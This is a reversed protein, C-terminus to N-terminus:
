RTVEILIGDEVSKKLLKTDAQIWSAAIDQLTALEKATINERENKGFGYLFVARENRRFAVLGRFAGRKGHGPGALRQKIVSGGLDADILGRNAREIAEGLAQDALRKRRAFKLFNKTKFIQM